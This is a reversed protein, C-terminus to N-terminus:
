IKLDTIECESKHAQSHIFGMNFNGFTKARNSPVVDFITRTNKDIYTGSKGFHRCSIEIDKIDYQSINNITFNAIMVADLPDRGWSYRLEVHKMAKEKPTLKSEQLKKYEENNKNVEAMGIKFKERAQKIEESSASIREKKTKGNNFTIREIHPNDNDTSQNQIYNLVLSAGHAEIVYEDKGQSEIGKSKNIVGGDKITIFYLKDSKSGDMNGGTWVDEYLVIIDGNNTKFPGKLLYSIQEVDSGKHVHMPKDNLYVTYVSNYYNDSKVPQRILQIKGIVTHTLDNIIKGSEGLEKTITIITNNKLNEKNTDVIQQGILRNPQSYQTIFVGFILIVGAISILKFYITNNKKQPNSHNQSTRKPNYIIPESKVDKVV